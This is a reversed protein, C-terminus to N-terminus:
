YRYEFQVGITRPRIRVSGDPGDFPNGVVADDEGGLNDAFVSLEWNEPAQVSFAARAILIEEGFALTQVNGATISRFGQKSMYSASAAFRGQYGSGGFPFAYDGFVSATYEPSYNPRDGEEFLVVGASVIQADMTLDSRGEHEDGM